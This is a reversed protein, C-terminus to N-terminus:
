AHSATGRRTSREEDAERREVEATVRDREARLDALTPEATDKEKGGSMGKAMMWICLGMGIPCALLPVLLLLSEMKM